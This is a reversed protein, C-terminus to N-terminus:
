YVSVTKKKLKMKSNNYLSVKLYYSLKILISVLNLIHYLRSLLVFLIHKKKKKQEASYYNKKLTFM